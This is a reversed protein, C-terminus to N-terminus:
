REERRARRRDRGAHLPAPPAAHRRRRAARGRLVLQRHLVRADPRSGGRARDQLHEAAVGAAAGADARLRLRGRLPEAADQRHLLRIQLPESPKSEGILYWNEWFTLGFMKGETHATRRSGPMTDFELKEQLSARFTEPPQASGRARCRTSSRSPPPTPASTSRSRSCAEGIAGASGGSSGAPQAGGGPAFTNRQCDFCDYNPNFGMVKYWKGELSAPTAKILPKPPLPADLPSDPGPAQTAIAICGADEITCQLM